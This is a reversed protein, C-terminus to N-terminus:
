NAAAHGRLADAACECEERTVDLHTVARVHQPGIALVLIGRQDLKEVVDEASGCSADVRFIIINTDVQAPELEFAPCDRVGDAIVQANAHDVLLRDRNNQLAFLAGAAIIGSQRMGGGFLKRHRRAERMLDAPGALASGVPAGLGKSFCVSVTDFHDAWKRASIGTAAVANFLRAGDLHTRLGNDRAWRCIQVVNEYPQVRGAGRNHTNELCVMRTRALHENEPRISGHLQEAKLVGGDGGITKAVVGSLQAFAAQEYNYIHCAAECIFEDGPKCHVRIAVQNTMTGSPMFLASEKGLVEATQQQLQDTTPDGGIVDDGVEADAIFQRMARSPRTVTDSRLDIM